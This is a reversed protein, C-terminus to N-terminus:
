NYINSRLTFKNYFVQKSPTSNPSIASIIFNSFINPHIIPFVSSFPISYNSMQISNILLKWGVSHWAASPISRILAWTIIDLQIKLTTYNNGLSIIICQEFELTHSILKSIYIDILNIYIKIDTRYFTTIKRHKCINAIFNYNHLFILPLPKSIENTNFFAM